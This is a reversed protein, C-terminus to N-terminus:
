TTAFTFEITKTEGDGVTVSQIQTGYKEHWAEIVYDGAPLNALSFAGDPRSVSYFPHELVGVYAAMWKHVDCRMKVMVEPVDFTKNNTLGKMPQALNFPKNKEAYSHINHLTADNNSIKLPQNVQIGMVHPLYMCGQQDIEVAELPTNFKWKSLGEKIYVFVNHMEGNEGTLVEQFTIAEPHLKMCEPDANMKIRGMSPATGELKVVGSIIASGKSADYLETAAAPASGPALSTETEGGGCGMLSLLGFSALILFRQRYVM